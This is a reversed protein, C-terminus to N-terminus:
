HLRLYHKFALSSLLFSAFFSFMWGRMWAPGWSIFAQEPLDIHIVDTMGDPPLYGIPNAMLLNWWRKKHIVPVAQTLPLVLLPRRNDGLTLTQGEAPWEVIWGDDTAQAQAPPSWHFGSAGPEARLSIEEGALPARYGFAGAVWVIIFLAPLSALLAPGLAHGLQRFGLALTRGILPLLEAFDGDFEAIQKQQQQQRTKLAAIKEQNSLLRYVLMSVWGALVGWLILRVVSPLFAALVGDTIGFLPAPLDFLGM